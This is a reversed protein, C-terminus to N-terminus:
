GVAPAAAPLGQIALFSGDPGRQMPLEQLVASPDISGYLHPFLPAEALQEDDQQQDEQGGCLLGKSSTNGM